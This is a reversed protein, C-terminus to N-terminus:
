QIAVSGRSNIALSETVISTAGNLLTGVNKCKCAVNNYQHFTLTYSSRPCLNNMGDIYVKLYRSALAAATAETAPPNVNSSNDFTFGNLENSFHEEIIVKGARNFDCEARLTYKGIPSDNNIYVNTATSDIGDNKAPAVPVQALISKFKLPAAIQSETALVATSLIASLLMM